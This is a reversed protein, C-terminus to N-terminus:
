EQGIERIRRAPNNVLALRDLNSLAPDVADERLCRIHCQPRSELLTRQAQSNSATKEADEVMMLM